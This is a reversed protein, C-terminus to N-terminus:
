PLSAFRKFIHRYIFKTKVKQIASQSRGCLEQGWIRIVCWGLKQSEHNVLRDRKTSALLKGGSNVFALPTRTFGPVSVGSGVTWL